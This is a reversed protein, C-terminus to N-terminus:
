TTFLIWCTNSDCRTAAPYINAKNVIHLIHESWSFDHSDVKVLDRHCNVFAHGGLLFQVVPNKMGVHVVCCELFNVSLCLGTKFLMLTKSLSVKFYRVWTLLIRWIIVLTQNDKSLKRKKWNQKWSRQEKYQLMNKLEERSKSILLMM